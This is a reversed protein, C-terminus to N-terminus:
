PRSISSNGTFRPRSGGGGHDHAVGAEDASRKGHDMQLRWNLLRGYGTPSSSLPHPTSTRERAGYDPMSSGLDTLTGKILLTSLRKIHRLTGSVNIQVRHCGVDLHM